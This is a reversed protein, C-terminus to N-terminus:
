LCLSHVLEIGSVFPSTYACKYPVPSIPIVKKLPIEYYTKEFYLGMDSKWFIKRHTDTILRSQNSSRMSIILSDSQIIKSIHSKLNEM